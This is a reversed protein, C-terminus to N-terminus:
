TEEVFSGRMEKNTECCGEVYEKKTYLHKKEKLYDEKRKDVFSNVNRGRIKMTDYLQRINLNRQKIM